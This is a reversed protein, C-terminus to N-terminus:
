VSEVDVLVNQVLPIEFKSGFNTIIIRTQKKVSRPRQLIGGLAPEYVRCFFYGSAAASFFILLSFFHAASFFSSFLPFFHATSFFHTASLILSRLVFDLFSFPSFIPTGKFAGFWIYQSTTSIIFTLTLIWLPFQLM